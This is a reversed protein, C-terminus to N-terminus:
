YGAPPAAHLRPAADGGDGGADEMANHHAETMAASPAITDDDAAPPRALQPQAAQVFSGSPSAGEGAPPVAAADLPAGALPPPASALADLAAVAHSGKAENGLVAAVQTELSADEQGAPALVAKIEDGDIAPALLRADIALGPEVPLITAPILEAEHAANFSVRRENGSERMWEPEIAPGPEVPLITAPILEAEHAANFSVRRENGSERMWEPEIAPGPEVPLISAPISEKEEPMFSVSKSSSALSLTRSPSHKHRLSSRRKRALADLAAVLHSGPGEARLCAAVQEDLLARRSALVDLARCFSSAPDNLLCGIGLRAAEAAIGKPGTARRAARGRAVAQLRAAEASQQLDTKEETVMASHQQLQAEEAESSHAVASAHSNALKTQVQARTYHGRQV